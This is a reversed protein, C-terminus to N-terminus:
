LRQPPSSSTSTSISKGSSSPVASCVGFSPVCESNAVGVTLGPRSTPTLGLHAATATAVFCHTSRSDVLAWVSGTTIKTELQITGGTRISAIAHLSVRLNDLDFEDGDEDDVLELLYIGGHMSCTKTHDPTLKEPCNFCGGELHHQAMEEPKLRTFGPQHSSAKIPAGLTTPRSGTANLSSTKPTIPFPAPHALTRPFPRALACSYDEVQARHEYARTLSMADEFTEPKMMEVDTRM